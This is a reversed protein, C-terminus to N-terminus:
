RLDVTLAVVSAPPLTVTLRSGSCAIREVRPVVQEPEEFTNCAHPDSATLTVKVGPGAFAGGLLDLETECAETYHCNVLSLTLKGDKISASGSLRDLRKKEGKETRYEQKGAEIHTRVATAGQHGRFLDFVHYNPTTVLQNGAALFLSHLNNVMQAVNAMVVKNCHNNFINLTIAAVLADRMTSQQEFLNKGKSPGSGNPHWCGWEDVVIGVNRGIAYSDMLGRQEVIIKEMIAAKGLLEYWQDEDFELANGATGCYYHVSYGYVPFNAPHNPDNLKNFFRRTWHLDNGDPGGAILKLRGRELLDVISAYKRFADCYDEPTMNGGCGWNENGIGWYQVGFPEPSGNRERLAALSTTGQPLNCYEMWNRIELPTTTTVNAAFYPEAGALRCFDAFEHTGVANPELRGDWGYWFSANVPRESRPGIGDRWNYIEAFCGGPWRIVPPSLKALREVLDRRFGRINPVQSQEGVWIGDYFVGGIHEAFHGYLNRNITGLTESLIISVKSM